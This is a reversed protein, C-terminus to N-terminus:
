LDRQVLALGFDEEVIHQELEGEASGVHVEVGASQEQDADEALTSALTSWGAM